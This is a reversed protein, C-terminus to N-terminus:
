GSYKERLNDDFFSERVSQGEFFYQVGINLREICSSVDNENYNAIQFLDNSNFHSIMSNLIYSNIKNVMAFLRLDSKVLDVKASALADILVLFKQCDWYSNEHLQGLFSEKDGSFNIEIVEIYNV